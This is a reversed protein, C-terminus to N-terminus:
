VARAILAVIIGVGAVVLSWNILKGKLVVKRENLQWAVVVDSLTLVKAEGPELGAYAVFTAPNPADEYKRVVFAVLALMISLILFIAFFARAWSPLHGTALFVGTAAVLAGVLVGAKTDLQEISTLQESLKTRAVEYVLDIAAPVQDPAVIDASPAAPQASRNLLRDWWKPV